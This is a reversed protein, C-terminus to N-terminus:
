GEHNRLLCPRILTKKLNKSMQVFFHMKSFQLFCGVNLKNFSFVAFYQKSCLNSFIISIMFLFLFTFLFAKGWEFLKNKIKKKPM